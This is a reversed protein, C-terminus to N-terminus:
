EDAQEEPERESTIRVTIDGGLVPLLAEAVDFLRWLADNEYRQRHEAPKEITMKYIM